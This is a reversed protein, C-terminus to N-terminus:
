RFMWRLGGRAAIIRGQVFVPPAHPIYSNLVLPGAAILRDGKGIEQQAGFIQITAPDGAKTV